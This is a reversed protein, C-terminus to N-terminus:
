QRCLFSRLINLYDRDKWEESGSPFLVKVGRGSAMSPCNESGGLVEFGYAKENGTGYYVKLGTWIRGGIPIWREVPMDDPPIPTNTPKPTNTPLPTNTPMPTPPIFPIPTAQMLVSLPGLRVETNGLQLWLDEAEKPADFILFSDETENSGLCQGLFFGPYDLDYINYIGEAYDRVMPYKKEDNRLTFADGYVCHSENTPNRMTGILWLFIGNKPSYRQSPDDISTLFDVRNVSFILGDSSQLEQPLSLLYTPTPTSTPTPTLTSTPTATALAIARATQTAKYSPSSTVILSFTFCGVCLATIGIAAIVLIYILNRNKTGTKPLKAEVEKPPLTPSVRKKKSSTKSPPPPLFPSPSALEPSITLPKLDPQSEEELNPITPSPSPESPKSDSDAKEIIPPPTTPRPQQLAALGRKAMENNPNIKLVNQLCKIREENSNVAQTMWLWANENSQNAKLEEILLQKGTEKDGSKIATIAQQLRTSM